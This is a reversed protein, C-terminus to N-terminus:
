QFVVDVAGIEAGKEALVTDGSYFLLSKLPLRNHKVAYSIGSQWRLIRFNKIVKRYIKQYLNSLFTSIMAKTYPLSYNAVRM